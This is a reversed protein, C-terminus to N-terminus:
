VSTLAGNTQEIDPTKRSSPSIKRPKAHHQAFGGQTSCCLTGTTCVQRKTPVPSNARSRLDKEAKKQNDRQRHLSVKKQNAGLTPRGTDAAGRPEDCVGKRRATLIRPRKSKDDDTTLIEPLNQAKRWELITRESMSSGAQLNEDDPTSPKSNVTLPKSKGTPSTPMVSTEDTPYRM